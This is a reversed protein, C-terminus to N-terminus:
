LNFSSLAMNLNDLKSPRLETVPLFSILLNNTLQRSPVTSLHYLKMKKNNEDLYDCYDVLCKALGEVPLKFALWQPQKWFSCMLLTFLDSSLAQLESSKMNTHERKRHKSLEPQNYGQFQLFIM